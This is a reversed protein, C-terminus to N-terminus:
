RFKAQKPDATAPLTPKWKCLVGLKYMLVICAWRPTDSEASLYVQSGDNYIDNLNASTARFFEDKAEIKLSFGKVLLLEISAYFNEPTDNTAVMDELTQYDRTTLEVSAYGAYTLKKNM